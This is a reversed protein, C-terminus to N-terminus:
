RLLNAGSFTTANARNPDPDQPCILIKPTSLENSMVLFHVFAPSSDVLEMTGGNTVPVQMPYRNQNDLACTWFSLGVQKLNNVCNVTASRATRRAFAPLIVLGLLALCAVIAFLEILSFAERNCTQSFSM